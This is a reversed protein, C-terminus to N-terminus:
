SHPLNYFVALLASSAAVAAVTTISSSLLNSQNTEDGKLESIPSSLINVADEEANANTALTTASAASLIPPLSDTSSAILIDKKDCLETSTLSSYSTNPNNHSSRTIVVARSTIRPVKDSPLSETEMTELENAAFQQEPLVIGESNIEADSFGQSSILLTTNVLNQKNSILGGYEKGDSNVESGTRVETELISKAALVSPKLNEVVSRSFLMKFAASVVSKAFMLLTLILASSLLFLIIRRASHRSKFPLMLTSFFFIPLAPIRLILGKRSEKIKSKPQTDSAVVDCLHMKKEVQLSKRNTPLIRHGCGRVSRLVSPLLLFCNAYRIQLLSAIITFELSLNSLKM